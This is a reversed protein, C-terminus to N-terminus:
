IIRFQQLTVSKDKLISFHLRYLLPYTDAVNMILYHVHMLHSVILIDNSIITRFIYVPIGFIITSIDCAWGISYRFTEIYSGNIIYFTNAICKSDCCIFAQM